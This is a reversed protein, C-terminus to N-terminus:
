APRPSATRFRRRRLSRAGRVVRRGGEHDVADIRPGSVREDGAEGEVTAYEFSVDPELRFWGRLRVPQGGFTGQLAAPVDPQWRGNAASRWTATVLAGAFIGAARHERDVTLELDVPEGGVTGTLRDQRCLLEVPGQAGPLSSPRPPRRIPRVQATQTWGGSSRPRPQYGSLLQMVQQRIASLDAGLSILVQSAVGEGEQVLGLLIHETGIYNHGLQLAERM